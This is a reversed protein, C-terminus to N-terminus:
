FAGALSRGLRGLSRLLLAKSLPAGCLLGFLSLSGIVHVIVIEVRQELLVPSFPLCLM